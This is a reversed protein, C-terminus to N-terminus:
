HDTGIDHPRTMPRASGCAPKDSSQLRDAVLKAYGAIDAWSDICNADGCIIRAMKHAIMDLAEQQDATMARFRSGEAEERIIHKITQTVRAVNAFGGYQADRSQVIAGVDVGAAKTGTGPVPYEGTVM